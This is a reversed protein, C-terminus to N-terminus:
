CGNWRSTSNGRMASPRERKFGRSGNEHGHYTPKSIGLAKAADPAKAYGAEARAQALREHMQKAM